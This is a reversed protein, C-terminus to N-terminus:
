FHQVSLVYTIEGPLGNQSVDYIRVCLTGATTATGSVAEGQVVDTNSVEVQCVSPGLATGLDMGIVTPANPDNPTIQTVTITVSGPSHVSFPHIRVSLPRLSGTIPEVLPQVPTPTTPPDDDGCGALCLTAACLLALTTTPRRM